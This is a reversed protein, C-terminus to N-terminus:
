KKREKRFVFPKLLRIEGTPTPYSYSQGSVLASNAKENDLFIKKSAEVITVASGGAKILALAKASVVFSGVVIAGAGPAFVTAITGVAAAIKITQGAVGMARNWDFGAIRNTLENAVKRAKETLTPGDELEDGTGFITTFHSGEFPGWQFTQSYGYEKLLAHAEHAIAEGLNRSLQGADVFITIPIVRPAQIPGLEYDFSYISAQILESIRSDDIPM